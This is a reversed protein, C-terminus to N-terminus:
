LTNFLQLDKTYTKINLLWLQLPANEYNEYLKEWRLLQIKSNLAFITVIIM